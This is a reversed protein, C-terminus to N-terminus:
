ARVKRVTSTRYGTVVKAYGGLMTDLEADGTDILLPSDRLGALKEPTAVVVVNDPGVRRIVEPSIQQNGRGFIHGQGGIPTVVIKAPREGVTELIDGETVDAALLRGDLVLDVGLLTKEVGIEEAVARVTTGPGLVYVVGAELREAFDAAIGALAAGDGFSRGDKASQVLRAEWPVRLYGYLKASLAGARFAEEDIDMVEAERIDTVRQAFFEITLDAAARPSTAYVASHMKVGAPIGLVPVKGGVARHIDRATGDGGAFLLLDVGRDAMEAAARVTDDASTAGAAPVGAADPSFGAEAAEDAGMENPAAILRADSALRPAIRRLAETARTPAEPVAGLRRAREVVEAGDTGKLGVRGGLGAIPNVVVGLRKAM